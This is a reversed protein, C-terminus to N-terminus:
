CGGPLVGFKACAIIRGLDATTRVDFKTSSDGNNTARM